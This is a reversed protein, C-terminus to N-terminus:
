WFLFAKFLYGRGSLLVGMGGRDALSVDSWVVKREARASLKRCFEVAEEWSVQEVPHNAAGGNKRTFRSPNSGMIKEYKEQTVPHIGLYFPWTIEVEHQLGEDESRDVESKPSGMTFTGAPILVFNMGLSNAFERALEKPNAFERALEKPLTALLRQLDTRQPLLQLM